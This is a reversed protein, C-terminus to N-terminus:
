REDLIARAWKVADSPLETRKVDWDPPATADIGLKASMGDIASPDLRNCFVKPVMFMDTDAQFRTSMAWLVDDDDYVDIDDDV